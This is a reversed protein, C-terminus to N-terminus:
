PRPREQPDQARIGAIVETVIADIINVQEQSVPTEALREIWFALGRVRRDELDLGARTLNEVMDQWVPWITPNRRRM